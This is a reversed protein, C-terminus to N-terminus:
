RSSEVKFYHSDNSLINLTIDTTTAYVLVRKGIGKREQALANSWQSTEASLELTSQVRLLSRVFTQQQKFPSEKIM